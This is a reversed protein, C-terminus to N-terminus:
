TSPVSSSVNTQARGRAAELSACQRKALQLADQLRTLRQQTGRALADFAAVITEETILEPTLFRLFTLGDALAHLVPILKAPELPM